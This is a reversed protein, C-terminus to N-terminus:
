GGGCPIDDTSGQVPLHVEERRDVERIGAQGNEGCAVEPLGATWTTCDFKSRWGLHYGGDALVSGGQQWIMRRAECERVRREIIGPQDCVARLTALRQLEVWEKDVLEWSFELMMWEVCIEIANM